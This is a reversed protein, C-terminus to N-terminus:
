RGEPTTSFDGIAMLHCRLCAFRSRRTPEFVAEPIGSMPWRVVIMKPVMESSGVV